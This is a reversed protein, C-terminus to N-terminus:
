CSFADCYYRQVMIARAIRARYRRVLPRANRARREQQHQAKGAQRQNEMVLDVARDARGRAVRHTPLTDLM